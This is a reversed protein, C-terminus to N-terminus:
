LCGSRLIDQLGFLVKGLNGTGAEVPDTDRNRKPCDLYPAVFREQGSGAPLVDERSESPSTFIAQTYFDIQMCHRSGLVTLKGGNSVKPSPICDWRRFCRIGEVRIQQINVSQRGKPSVYPVVMGALPSHRIEEVSNHANGVSM